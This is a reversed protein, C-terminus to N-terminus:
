RTSVDLRGEILDAAVNCARAIREADDSSIKNPLISMPKIGNGRLHLVFPGRDLNVSVACWADADDTLIRIAIM